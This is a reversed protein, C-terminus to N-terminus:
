HWFVSMFGCLGCEYFSDHQVNILPILVVWGKAGKEKIQKKKLYCVDIMLSFFTYISECVLLRANVHVCLM